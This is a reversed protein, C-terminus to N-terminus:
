ETIILQTQYIKDGSNITLFYIGSNFNQKSEITLKNSGTQLKFADANFITQGNLSNISISVTAEKESQYNLFVNESKTPNPYLQILGQGKISVAVPSYYHKSGNYDLQCLRYYNIGKAPINDITSYNRMVNSNGAGKVTAVTTFTEGNTSHELLFYDNDTESATAWSIAVENNNARVNFYLLCVPLYIPGSFPGMSANWFTVGCIDVYTSNGGGATAKKLLGGSRISVFSGCPLDLKNGNTFQLTGDIYIDLLSCATYDLHASETIVHGTLIFVTDGCSPLAPVGNKLWTSANTWNGSGNSYILGAQASYVNILVGILLMRLQLSVPHMTKLIM